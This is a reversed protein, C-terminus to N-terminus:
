PGRQPASLESKNEFIDEAALQYTLGPRYDVDAFGEAVDRSLPEPKDSRFVLYQKFDRETNKNWTLLATGAGGGLSEIQLGTPTAPPTMDTATLTLPMAAPGPVMEAGRVATVTYTYKKDPEYEADEFHPLQVSVAGPRDTRQVIYAGVLAPNREPPDWDLTIRQQDVVYRLARPAGPVDVPRIAVANSLGSLRGRSTEVQVEFTLDTNLRNTIDEEHSQPQGAAKIPEKVVEEGNRLIRVVALDAAANQGDVYFAPNTWSLIVRNENQSVRLDGIAQPIRVIPPLPPGVKGCGAAVWLALLAAPAVGKM